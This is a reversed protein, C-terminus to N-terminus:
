DRVVVCPEDDDVGRQLEEFDFVAIQEVTSRKPEAVGLIFLSRCDDALWVDVQVFGFIEKWVSKLLLLLLLLVM